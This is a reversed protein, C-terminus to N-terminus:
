QGASQALLQDKNNKYYATAEEVAALVGKTSYSAGSVGSVATPNDVTVKQFQSTFVPEMVRTGIGPTESHTM